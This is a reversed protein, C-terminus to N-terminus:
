DDYYATDFSGLGKQYLMKKAKEEGKERVTKEYKRRVAEAIEEEYEVFFSDIAEKALLNSIGKAKLRMILISKGEIGRRLRSRLFSEAFREDSQFGEKELRDLVATIESKEGGKDALKKELEARSHERVALYSIAKDYLDMYLYYCM